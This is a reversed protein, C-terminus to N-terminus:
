QCADVASDSTPSAVTVFDYGFSSNDSAVVKVLEVEAARDGTPLFEIKKEAGEASFEPSILTQQIGSRTPEKKMAEGLAMTADYALVTRWNVGGGWLKNAMTSFQSNNNKTHWPVAIIMDVVNQRGLQLTRPKYFSDGGLLPLEGQNILAVLFTKDLTELANMGSSNPFMAIAKAGKQKIQTLIDVIDFNPQSFNFEAVVRGNKNELSSKFVDRLSTSYSSASNYLVAVEKVKIQDLLYEALANGAFCDSSVTRFVYSGVNSIATSSSTPSIVVLGKNQYVQAAELTVNSSFHGVIGLIEPNESFNQALKKAVDPNNSDNAVILKIPKGKIGGSSNIQQQAQAAGRLIEKAVNIEADIPVPVGISYSPNNGIRANNAYILTEPDNRQLKLSSQWQSVARDYDGDAYADAAMQKQTNPDEDFLTKEGSSIKNELGNIAISDPTTNGQSDGVPDSTSDRSSWTGCGTLGIMAISALM